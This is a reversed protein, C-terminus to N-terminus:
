HAMYNLVKCEVDSISYADDLIEVRYHEREKEALKQYEVKLREWTSMDVDKRFPDEPILLFVISPFVSGWHSLEMEIMAKLTSIKLGSLIGYAWTSWWFRDLVVTRGDSLAPIIQSEIADLHAAVHLAQLSTNSLSTIEANQPNHQIRYVFDGITGAKNGPFAVYQTLIKSAILSDTLSKALSSKGVGDPGEFVILEGGRGIEKGRALVPESGKFMPFLFM